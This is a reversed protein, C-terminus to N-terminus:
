NAAPGLQWVAAQEPPLIAEWHDGAKDPAAGLLAKPRTNPPLGLAAFDISV